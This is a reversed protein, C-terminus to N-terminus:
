KEAEQALHASLKAVTAEKEMRLAEVAEAIAEGILRGWSEFDHVAKYDDDIPSWLTLEGTSRNGHKFNLTLCTGSGSDSEFPTAEVRLDVFPECNAFPYLNVDFAKM